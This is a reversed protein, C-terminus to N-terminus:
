DSEGYDGRLIGYVELDVIGKGPWFSAQRLMGEKIFGNKLLVRKSAGNGLMVEAHLRNINGVEFLFKVFESLAESAIGKGWYEEALYYGIIASNTKQKFEMGEIIGVMKDTDHKMFIGLKMRSRKNFDRQFHGIMNAVTKINHKPIIGCFEFVKENDYIAFLENLHGDEIKKLVVNNSELTPVEGFLTEMEM